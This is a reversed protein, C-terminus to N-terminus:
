TPWSSRAIPRPVQRGAGQRRDPGPVGQPPRTAARAQAHSQAPGQRGARNRAHAQQRGQGPRRIQGPAAQRRGRGRSQPDLRIHADEGFYVAYSPRQKENAVRKRVLPPLETKIYEALEDATVVGDPEYGEKDAKGKLGDLLVQTFTGHKDGDPSLYRGNGSALFLARGPRRPRGRRQGQGPVGQVPQRVVPESRGSLGQRAQVGQLVCGRVHLRPPEQLKDLDDGLSTALVATKVPDKVDSDTAFYAMRDAHEGLAAGQGILTFVVLDDRKAEKALWKAAQLINEKTAEQSSRKEDKAGGLLLKIHDKPMGLYAKDTFVDYLAQVDDEAHPRSQIAADSYKGVGILVVYASPKGVDEAARLPLALVLWITMGGLLGRLTAKTM